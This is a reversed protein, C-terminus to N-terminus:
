SEQEIFVRYITIYVITIHINVQRKGIETEIRKKKIRQHNKNPVLPFFVVVFFSSRSVFM